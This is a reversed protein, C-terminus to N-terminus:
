APAAAAESAAKQKSLDLVIQIAQLDGNKAKEVLADTIARYTPPSDHFQPSELSEKLADFFFNM